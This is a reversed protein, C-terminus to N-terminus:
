QSPAPISTASTAQGELLFRKLGPVSVNTALHGPNLHAPLIDLSNITYTKGNLVLRDVHISVKDKYIAKNHVAKLVPYLAKRNTKTESSYDENIYVGTGRLAPASQLIIQRDSFFPLKIIISRVQDLIYRGVRHCRVIEMNDLIHQPIDTKSRLLDYIKRQCHENTENREENIGCFLLNDRRSHDELRVGKSHLANHDSKLKAFQLKFDDM